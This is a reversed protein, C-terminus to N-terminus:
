QLTWRLVKRTFFGWLIPVLVLVWWYHRWLPFILNVSLCAQMIGWSTFSFHKSM